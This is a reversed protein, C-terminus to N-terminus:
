RAWASPCPWARTSSCRCWSSTSCHTIVLVAIAIRVPTRIDQRAYFAPALVKIAVLGLLGVGYGRLALVTQGRRQANFRWLSCCPWWRGASLDAAGRCL